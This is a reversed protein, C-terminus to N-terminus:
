PKILPFSEPQRPFMQPNQLDDAKGISRLLGPMQRMVSEYLERADLTGDKNTDAEKFGEGMAKLVAHTFLGNQYKEHEYALESRDCASIIIPGQGGPTLARVPNFAAEGSHCADLFVVKRCPIAALKEYLTQHDVGTLRYQDRKYDPGCFVFASFPK